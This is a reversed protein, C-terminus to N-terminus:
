FLFASEQLGTDLTVSNLQLAWQVQGNLTQTYRYPILSGDIKRYDGYTLCRLFRQNGSGPLLVVDVSKILLHTSPDFYLDVAVTQGSSGAQPSSTLNASRELLPYELTVRHLVAGDENISGDDTLSLDSGPFGAARLRPFAMLGLAATAIPLYAKSGDEEEAAGAIWAIRLSRLGKATTIDLRYDHEGLISLSANDIEDNTNGAGPFAISGTAQMDTWPSAGVAALHSTVESLAMPDIKGLAALTGAPQPEAIDRDVAGYIRTFDTQGFLPPSLLLLSLLCLYWLRQVRPNTKPHVTPPSLAAIPLYSCTHIKM